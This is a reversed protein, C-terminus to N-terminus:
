FDLIEAVFLECLLIDFIVSYRFLPLLYPFLDNFFLARCSQGSSSNRRGSFIAPDTQPQVHRSVLVNVVREFYDSERLFSPM